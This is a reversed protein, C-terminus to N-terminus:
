TLYEDGFFSLFTRWFFDTGRLHGDPSRFAEFIFCSARHAKTSNRRRKKISSVESHQINNRFGQPTRSRLFHNKYPRGWVFREFCNRVSSCLDLNRSGFRPSKTVPSHSAVHRLRARQSGKLRGCGHSWIEKWHWLAKEESECGGTNCPEKALAAPMIAPDSELRVGCFVWCIALQGNIVKRLGCFHLWSWVSTCLHHMTDNARVLTVM